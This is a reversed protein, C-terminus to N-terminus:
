YIKDLNLEIVSYLDFLFNENKDVLYENVLWRTAIKSVNVYEDCLRDYSDFYNGLYYFLNDKMLYSPTLKLYESCQYLSNFMKKNTLSSEISFHYNHESIINYQIDLLRRLDRQELALKSDNSCVPTLFFNLNRDVDEDFFIQLKDLSHKTVVFNLCVKTYKSYRKINALINDYDKKSVGRQDKMVPEIGDFSVTIQANKRSTLHLTNIGNTLIEINEADIRDLLENYNYLSPEGGTLVVKDWSHKEIFTMNDIDSIKNPSQRNNLFCYKCRLQCKSGLEINLSNIIKKM